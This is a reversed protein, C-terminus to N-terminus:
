GLLEKWIFYDEKLNLQALDPESKFLGFVSSGSGSMSAYVAGKELLQAKIEGIEPYMQFVSYEFDNKVLNLWEEPAKKLSEALPNVPVSPRVGAYAEKTAVGFTPKVLLLHYGSLNIKAPELIEGIGTAFSPKNGIFFSCDAGLQLALSRLEAVSLELEFYDNLGKLFFAADSSGGGLGAGFPIAKHLHIDLGPLQKEASLLHFAKVILNSSPDPDMPIGSLTLNVKDSHNEIFELADQLGVPYFLTEINHYGDSRKSVIHLGINIKANPFLLM